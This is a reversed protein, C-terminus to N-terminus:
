ATAITEYDVQESELFYQLVMTLCAASCLYGGAGSVYGSYTTQDILPVDLVRYKTVM